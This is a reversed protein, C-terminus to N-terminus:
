LMNILCLSKQKLENLKSYVSSGSIYYDLNNM